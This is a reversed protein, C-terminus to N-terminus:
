RELSKEAALEGAIGADCAARLNVYSGRWIGCATGSVDRGIEGASPEGESSVGETVARLDQLNQGVRSSRGAAIGNLDIAITEAASGVFSVTVIPPAAAVTWCVSFTM